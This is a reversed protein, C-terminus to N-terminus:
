HNKKTGFFIIEYFTLFKRKQWKTGSRPGPHRGLRFGYREWMSIRRAKINYSYQSIILLLSWHSFSNDITAQNMFASVTSATESPFVYKGHKDMCLLDEILLWQIDVTSRRQQCSALYSRDEHLLITLSWFAQSSFCGGIWRVNCQARHFCRHVWSRDVLWSATKRHLSRRWWLCQPIGSQVRNFSNPIFPYHWGIM